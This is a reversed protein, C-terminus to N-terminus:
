STELDYGQCLSIYTIEQNEISYLIVQIKQQATLSGIDKPSM